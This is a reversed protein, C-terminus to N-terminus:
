TSQLTEASITAPVPKPSGYRRIFDWTAQPMWGSVESNFRIPDLKVIIFLNVNAVTKLFDRLESVSMDTALALLNAPTGTQWDKIQSNDSLQKLLAERNVGSTEFIVLFVDTM